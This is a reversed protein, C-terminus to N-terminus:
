SSNGIPSVSSSSAAPKARAQWARGVASRTMLVARAMAGATGARRADAMTCATVGSAASTSCRRMARGSSVGSAKAGPWYMFIRSSSPLWRLKEIADAGRPLSTSKWTRRM